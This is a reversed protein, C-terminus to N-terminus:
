DEFAKLFSEILKKASRLDELRAGEPLPTSLLAGVQYEADTLERVVPQVKEHDLNLKRSDVLVDMASLWSPTVNFKLSMLLLEDISPSNRGSEYYSISSRDGKGLFDALGQQSIGERKRCEKIRQAMIQSRRESISSEEVNKNVKM